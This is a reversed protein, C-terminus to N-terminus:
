GVDADELAHALTAAVIELSGDLAQDWDLSAAPRGPVTIGALTAPLHIFGSRMTWNAKQARELSGYLVANCLYGGADHSLSCPLSRQGLRELIDVTPITAALYDPGDASLRSSPPLRGAADPEPKAFNQGRSEIAFGSATGAVGFHLVAAPELEDLLTTLMAPGALWETPLVAAEFRHALWRTRALRALETVLLASANEPVGPFPGFGTLLIASRRKSM